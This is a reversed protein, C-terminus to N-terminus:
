KARNSRKLESRAAGDREPQRPLPPPAFQRVFNPRAAAPLPPDLSFHLQQRESVTCYCLTYVTYGVRGPRRSRVDSPFAREACAATHKVSVTKIAVKRCNGGFRLCLLILYLEFVTFSQVRENRTRKTQTSALGRATPKSRRRRDRRNVRFVFNFLLLVRM